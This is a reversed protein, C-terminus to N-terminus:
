KKGILIIAVVIVGLVLIMGANNGLTSMPASQYTSGAAGITQVGGPTQVTAVPNGTVISAITSGWQGITGSIQSIQDATSVDSGSYVSPNAAVTSLDATDSGWYSASAM